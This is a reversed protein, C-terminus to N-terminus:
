SIPIGAEDSAIQYLGFTHYVMLLAPLIWLVEDGGTTSSASVLEM